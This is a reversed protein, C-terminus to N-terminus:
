FVSLATRAKEYAPDLRLCDMFHNQAAVDKGFQSEIACLHYEAAAWYEKDQWERVLRFM